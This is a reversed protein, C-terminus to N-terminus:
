PMDGEPVFPNNSEYDAKSVRDPVGAFDFGEPKRDAYVIHTLEAGGANEFIGPCFEHPGDDDKLWLSSGCTDCWARESFPTSRHTKVPGTVEVAGVADLGMQIGGGWRQCNACFCASMTEALGEARVRVAGCLCRGTMM